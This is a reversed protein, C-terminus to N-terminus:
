TICKKEFVVSNAFSTSFIGFKILSRKSSSEAKLTLCMWKTKAYIPRMKKEYIQVGSITRNLFIYFGVFAVSTNERKFVM